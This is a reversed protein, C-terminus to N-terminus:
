RRWPSGLDLGAEEIGMVCIPRLRFQRIYVGCDIGGFPRKYGPRTLLFRLDAELSVNWIGRRM